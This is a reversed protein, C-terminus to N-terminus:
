GRAPPSGRLVSPSVERWHRIEKVCWGTASIGIATFWLGQLVQWGAMDVIGDVLRVVGGVLILVAWPTCVWLVAHWVAMPVWWLTVRVLWTRM